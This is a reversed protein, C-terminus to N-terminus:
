VAKLLARDRSKQVLANTWCKGIEVLQDETLDEIPVTQDSEDRIFHPVTPLRLVRRTTVTVTVHKESM